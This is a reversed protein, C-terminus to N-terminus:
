KRRGVTPFSFETIAGGTTIRGIKSGTNETFWLAGDPGTIITWPIETACCYATASGSTTVHVIEKAAVSWLAGDPGLTIGTPPPFTTGVPLQFGTVTQSWHRGVLGAFEAGSGSLSADSGEVYTGEQFGGHSKRESSLQEISM